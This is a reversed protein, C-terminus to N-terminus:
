TRSPLPPLPTRRAMHTLTAEGSLELDVGAGCVLCTPNREYKFTPAYLAQGGMYTLILALAVALALTPSLTPTPTPTPTRAPTPTRTRTIAQGGMYMLNNNLYACSNSM